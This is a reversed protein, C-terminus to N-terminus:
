VKRKGTPTLLYRPKTVVIPRQEFQNQIFVSRPAFQAATQLRYALYHLDPRRPNFAIGAHFKRVPNLLREILVLTFDTPSIFQDRLVVTIPQITKDLLYSLYHDCNLNEDVVGNGNDDKGNCIEAPPTGQGFVIDASGFFSVSFVLFFSALAVKVLFVEHCKKMSQKPKVLLISKYLSM